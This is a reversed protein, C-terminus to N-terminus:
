VTMMRGSGDAHDRAEGKQAEGEQGGKTKTPGLAFIDKTKQICM